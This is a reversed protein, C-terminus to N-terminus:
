FVRFRNQRWEYGDIIGEEYFDKYNFFFPTFSGKGHTNFVILACIVLISFSIMYEAPAGLRLRGGLLHFRNSSWPSFPVGSVSLADALVHTVAGWSIGLLIGKMDFIFFSFIVLAIWLALYHTEARHRTVPLFKEALDPLISGFIAYPAIMPDIVAGTSGGIIIHNVWKM